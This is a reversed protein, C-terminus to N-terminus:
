FELINQNGTNKVKYNQVEDSNIDVGLQRLTNAAIKPGIIQAIIEYGAQRIAEIDKYGATYLKRARVRGIGKIKIIPLLESSAGYSIREVLGNIFSTYNSGLHASIRATSHMLWEANDAQARIDGPGINFKSTIDDEKRESIWDLLVMATKVESLFWEYDASSPSPPHVFQDSHQSVFDDLWSYDNSRLFLRRMDPTKYILHLCTLETVNVTDLNRLGEVIISASMPDIYLKSVVEGLRTPHLGDSDVLMENNELFTLVDDVVAALRWTDQQYAFFTRELFDMLEKRSRVVGTSVASLIHTRLANETGLKSWIDEANSLVYEVMLLNMEDFSRVVLVSEGYPDLGPRGARGAMQKYELVPIPVMGYNPDYRKYGRIIVRRAPLNLGAALTPTSSLVKIMNNRFGNEILKRQESLLGAHHFASGGKICDSLKKTIETEGTDLMQEALVQLEELNKSDLMKGLKQGIRKASAEANRRSSEFILCQAGEEITDAALNLLDDTYKEEIVRQSDPFNIASGFYVGEKLDIPRWESEVLSADLWQAMDKANGVTASLGIIQADPNMQMLRAITVELTPGRDPSDLLHIEDVVVVTIDNMWATGNRILSDTKESTAVIIDTKALWEDRSDFDGSSIGARVGISEFEKFRQFKESALARLPVIYLCKGGNFISKLMALEAIMTKGSATPVSVLLNRNELLGAEVAKIQPPYLESIGSEIYFSRVKDPIDLSTLKM